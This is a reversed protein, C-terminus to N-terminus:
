PCAPDCVEQGGSASVTNDDYGAGSGGSGASAISEPDSADATNGDNDDSDNSGARATGGTDATAFNNDSNNGNFGAIAISDQESANAFNDTNNYGEPQGFAGGAGAFGGATPM